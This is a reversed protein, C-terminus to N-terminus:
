YGYAVAYEIEKGTTALTLDGHFTTSLSENGFSSSTREFTVSADVSVLVNGGEIRREIHNLRWSDTALTAQTGQDINGQDDYLVLSEFLGGNNANTMSEFSDHLSVQAVSSLEFGALNAPVTIATTGASEVRTSIIGQAQEFFAQGLEAADQASIVADIKRQPNKDWFYLYGLAATAIWVVILGVTTLRRSNM